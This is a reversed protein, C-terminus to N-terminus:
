GATLLWRPHLQRPIFNAASCLRANSANVCSQTRIYLLLLPALATHIAATVGSGARSTDVHNGVRRLFLTRIASKRSRYRQAKADSARDTKSLRPYPSNSINLRAPTTRALTSCRKQSLV